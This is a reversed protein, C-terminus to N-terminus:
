YRLTLPDPRIALILSTSCKRWRIPKSGIEAGRHPNSSGFRGRCQKRARMLRLIAGHSEKDCYCRRRQQLAQFQSSRVRVANCICGEEGTTFLLDGEEGVWWWLIVWVLWRLLACSRRRGHRSM